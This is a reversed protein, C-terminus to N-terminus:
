SCIENIFDKAYKEKTFISSRQASAKAMRERLDKNGYLLSIANALSEPMNGDTTLLIANEKTVEEPIGGRKTAIIPKGMAQAELVTTPFPDDWVSPIVAVDSASLFDKIRSYPQFGTFIVKDKIPEALTRLSRYFEDETIDNGFFSSGLVLLKINEYEKLLLLSKILEYIGKERNIRGSFMLVFDDRSIGFQSRIDHIDKNESTFLTLDIGNHVTVTKTDNKDLTTVCNRIYDSVTIIKYAADYIEKGYETQDNLKDNHLHYILKANTYKSLKLSFAPRNELLIVDYKQKKIDQICQQLFYEITYHYYEEGHLIHYFKKKIKAYLSETQIYKYHNVDSKLAEHSIAQPNYVSYVTIDHRKQQDNYELYMDMLNEVAGGQVAPVPLIGSTLIAIKM